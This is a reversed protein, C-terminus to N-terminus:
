AALRLRCDADILQNRAGCGAAPAYIWLGSPGRTPRVAPVDLQQGLAAVQDQVRATRHKGDIELFKLRLNHTDKLLCAGLRGSHSWL